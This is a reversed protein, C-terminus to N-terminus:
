TCRFVETCVPLLSNAMMSPCCRILAIISNRPKVTKRETFHAFAADRFWEFASPERSQRHVHLLAKPIKIEDDLFEGSVGIRVNSINERAHIFIHHTQRLLFQSMRLFLALELIKNLAHTLPRKPPLCSTNVSACSARIRAVSNTASITIRNLSPTGLM